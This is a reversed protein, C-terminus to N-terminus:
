ISGDLSRDENSLFLCYVLCGGCVSFVIFFLKWDLYNHKISSLWLLLYRHLLFFFATLHSRDIWGFLLLWLALFLIFCLVSSEKM